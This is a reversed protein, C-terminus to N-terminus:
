LKRVIDEPMFWCVENLKLCDSESVIISKGKLSSLPEANDSRPSFVFVEDTIHEIDFLDNYANKNVEDVLLYFDAANKSGYKKRILDEAQSKKRAYKEKSESPPEFKKFPRRLLLHVILDKLIPDKTTNYWDRFYYVVLNDDIVMFEDLSITGEKLKNLLSYGILHKDDLAFYRKFISRIITEFGRVVKHLYVHKYMYFRGMIYQELVNLGKEVNIAIVSEPATIATDRSTKVIALNRILWCLDIKGYNAGTMYSDRITFDLRDADFQSSIISVAVKDSAEGSIIRCINEREKKGIIKALDRDESIIRKSLDEHHFKGGLVEIVSEFTHSFAIHGVDHLLAAMLILEDHEEQKGKIQQLIQKAIHYVGLSHTFRSHEASPYVLSAVGLQKISRLRQFARSDVLELIKGEVDIVDHIPDRIIKSKM